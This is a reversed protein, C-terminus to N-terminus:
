DSVTANEEEEIEGAEGANWHVFSEPNELWLDYTKIRKRAHEFRSADLAWVEKAKKIADRFPEPEGDTGSVRAALDVAWMYDKRLAHLGESEMDRVLKQVKKLFDPISMADEDTTIVWEKFPLQALDRLSGKISARRQDSARIDRSRMNCASCACKFSYALQLVSQRESCPLLINTYAITIEEDKKIARAAYLTLSFTHPDWYQVANPSCSYGVFSLLTRSLRLPSVFRHNCRGISLFVGSHTSNGEEDSSIQVAIGNTRIIGEETSCAPKLKCNGMDRAKAELEDPLRCFLKGYLEAKTVLLGALQIYSPAIMVPREVLITDGSAIDFKANTTVNRKGLLFDSFDDKARQITLPQNLPVLPPSSVRAIIKLTSESLLCSTQFPESDSASADPQYVINHYVLRERAHKSAQSSDQLRQLASLDCNRTKAWEIAELIDHFVNDGKHKALAPAM